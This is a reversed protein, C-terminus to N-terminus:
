AYIIPFSFLAAIFATLVITFTDNQDEYDYIESVQSNLVEDTPIDENGSNEINMLIDNLLNQLIQLEQAENYQTSSDVEVQFISRPPEDEILTGEQFKTSRQICM